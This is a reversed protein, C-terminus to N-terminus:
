RSEYDLDNATNVEACAILLRAIARMQESDFLYVSGISQWGEGETDFEMSIKAAGGDPEVVLRGKSTGNLPIKNRERKTRPTDVVTFIRM